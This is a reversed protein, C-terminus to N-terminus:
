CKSMIKLLRRSKTHITNKKSETNNNSREENKSLMYALSKSM